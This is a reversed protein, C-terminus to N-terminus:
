PEISWTDLFIEDGVLEGSCRIKRGELQDLVEDRFPNGGVRRLKFEGQTTALVLSQHESKTGRRILKRVVTGNWEM